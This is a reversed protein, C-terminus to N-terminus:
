QSTIVAVAIGIAFTLVTIILAVVPLRLTLNGEAKALARDREEVRERFGELSTVRKEVHDFQVKLETFGKEVSVKLDILSDKVGLLLVHLVEPSPTGYQDIDRRGLPHEDEKSM